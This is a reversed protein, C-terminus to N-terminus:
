FRQYIFTRGTGTMLPFYFLVMALIGGVILPHFSTQSAARLRKEIRIAIMSVPLILMLAVLMSYGTGLFGHTLFLKILTRESAWFPVISFAFYVMAAASSISVYLGSANQKAVREKGLISKIKVQWLKNASVGVGLAIGCLFYSVTPGHWIGLLFFTIFFAFVGYYTVWDGYPSRTVLVKVIPNFIYTKFWNALTMHWRSWLDIFNKCAWPFDFNEPISFGVLRGFGIVIRTYGSFNFYLFFLYFSAALSLVAPHVLDTGLLMLSLLYFVYDYGREKLLTLISVSGDADIMLAIDTQVVLTHFHDHVRFSVDGLVVVFFIGMVINGFIKYTQEPSLTYKEVQELQKSFQQYSMIPGSLLTPWSIVFQLFRWFSPAELDGQFTDIIVQLCRILIYSLGILVPLKSSFPLYSFVPYSKLYFFVLLIAMFVAATTQLKRTEAIKVVGYSFMIFCVTLVISLPGPALLYLLVLNSLPFVFSARLKRPLFWFSLISIFVILFVFFLTSDTM